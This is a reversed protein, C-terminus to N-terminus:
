KAKQEDKGEKGKGERRMREAVEAGRERDRARERESARESYPIWGTADVRYWFAM